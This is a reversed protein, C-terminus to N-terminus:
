PRGGGPKARLPADEVSARLPEWTGSKKVAAIEIPLPTASTYFLQSPMPNSSSYPLAVPMPKSPTYPLTVALTPDTRPGGGDAPRVFHITVTGQQDLTGTGVIVVPQISANPIPRMAVGQASVPPGIRLACLCVLAAAIVTLVAKTYRDIM